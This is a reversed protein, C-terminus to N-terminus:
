SKRPPSFIICCFQRLLLQLICSNIKGTVCEPDMSQYEQSRNENMKNIFKLWNYPYPLTLMTEITQKNSVSVLSCFLILLCYLYRHIICCIIQTLSILNSFQTFSLFLKRILRFMPKIELVFIYKIRPLM